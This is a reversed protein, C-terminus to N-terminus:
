HNKIDDIVYKYIEDAILRNGESYVHASDYFVESHEDLLSQLDIMWAFNKALESVEKRFNVALSRQEKDREFKLREKSSLEPKTLYAPQAFCVFKSKYVDEVIAHMMEEQQVWVRVPSMVGNELGKSYGDPCVSYFMYDMHHPIYPHGENPEINNIGSFSIVLDPNLCSGDRILKYLEQGANYAAIGGNYITVYYGEAKLRQYLLEPWSINAYFSGTTTSGGLTIIKYDDPADSGYISFGQYERMEFHPLPVFGLTVDPMMINNRVKDIASDNLFIYNLYPVSFGLSRIQAVAKDQENLNKALVVFVDESNEYGLEYIHFINNAKDEFDDFMKYLDIKMIYFFYLWMNAYYSDMGYMVIRKGAMVAESLPYLWNCTEDWAFDTGLLNKKATFIKYEEGTIVKEAIAEGRMRSCVIIINYLNPEKHKEAMDMKANVTFERDFFEQKVLITDAIKAGCTKLQKIVRDCQRKSDYIVINEKEVLEKRCEFLKDYAVFVAQSKPYREKLEKKEKWNLCVILVDAEETLMQLEEVPKGLFSEKVGYEEWFGEVLIGSISLRGLLAVGARNFPGVFIRFPCYAEKLKWMPIIPNTKQNHYEFTVDLAGYIDDVGKYLQIKNERGDLVGSSELVEWGEGQLIIEKGSHEKIFKHMWLYILENCERIYLRAAQEILELDTRPKEEGIIQNNWRMFSLLQGEENLVPLLYKRNERVKFFNQADAFVNEGITVSEGGESSGYLLSEYTLYREFIGANQLVVIDKRHGNLFFNLLKNRSCEIKEVFYVEKCIFEVM